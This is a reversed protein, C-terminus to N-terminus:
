DIKGFYNPDDSVSYMREKKHYIKSKMIYATVNSKNYPVKALFFDKKLRKPASFNITLAVVFNYGKLLHYFIKFIIM